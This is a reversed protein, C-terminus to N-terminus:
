RNKCHKKLSLTDFLQNGIQRFKCNVPKQLAPIQLKWQVYCSMLCMLSDPETEIIYYSHAIFILTKLYMQGTRLFNGLIIRIGFRFFNQFDPSKQVLVSRTLSRLNLIRSFICFYLNKTM